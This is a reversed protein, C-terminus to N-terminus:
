KAGQIESNRIVRRKEERACSPCQGEQCHRPSFDRVVKVVFCLVEPSIYRFAQLSTVEEVRESYLLFLSVSIPVIIEGEGM